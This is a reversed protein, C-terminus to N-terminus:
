ATQAQTESQTTSAVDANYFGIAAILTGVIVGNWVVWTPVAFLFPASILYLGLLGNFGAGAGSVERGKTTVYYNYGGVIAVLSGVTLASYLAGTPADFLFPVVLMWLGLVANSGALWKTATTTSHRRAPSSLVCGYLIFYRDIFPMPPGVQHTVM